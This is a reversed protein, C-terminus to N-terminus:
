RMTSSSPQASDALIGWAASGSVTNYLFLRSGQACIHTWGYQADFALADYQATQIFTGGEIRGIAASGNRADYFLLTSM